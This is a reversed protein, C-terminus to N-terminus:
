NGKDRGNKDKLKKLHKEFEDDQAGSWMDKNREVTEVIQNFHEDSFVWRKRYGDAICFLGMTKHRNAWSVQDEFLDWQQLLLTIGSITIDTAGLFVMGGCDWHPRKVEKIEPTVGYKIRIYDTVTQVASDSCVHNIVENPYVLIKM